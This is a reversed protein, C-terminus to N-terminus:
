LENDHLDLPFWTCWTLMCHDITSFSTLTSSGYITLPHSVILLELINERYTTDKILQILANSTVFNVILLLMYLRHPYM